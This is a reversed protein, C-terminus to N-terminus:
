NFDPLDEQFATSSPLFSTTEAHMKTYEDWSCSTRIGCTKGRLALVNDFSLMKPEIKERPSRTQTQMIGQVAIIVKILRLFITGLFQLNVAVRPWDHGVEAGALLGVLIWATLSRRVSAHVAILLIALWRLVAPVIAPLSLTGALLSAAIALMVAAVAAVLINKKM